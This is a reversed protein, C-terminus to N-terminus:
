RSTSRPRNGHCWLWLTPPPPLAPPVDALTDLCCPWDVRPTSACVLTFAPVGRGGVQCAFLTLGVVTLFTAGMALLVVQTEYFSSVVGALYTACLTFAGLLLYNHPVKRRMDGCCVLTCILVIRLVVYRVACLCVCLRTHTAAGCVEGAAGAM